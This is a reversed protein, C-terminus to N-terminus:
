FSPPTVVPGCNVSSLNTAGPSTRSPGLAIRTNTMTSVPSHGVQYFFTEGLGPNGADPFVANSPAGPNAVADAYCGGKFHHTGDYPDVGASAGAPRRAVFVDYGSMGAPAPGAPWNLRVATGATNIAGTYDFFIDETDGNGGGVDSGDGAYVRVTILRSEECATDSSCRVTLRYNADTLPAVGVTGDPSFDQMLDVVTVVNNPDIAIQEWKFLLTGNECAPTSASSGRADLNVVQGLTDSNILRGLPDPGVQALASSALAVTITGCNAANEGALCVAPGASPDPLIPIPAIRLDTLKIDDVYWGDDQEYPSESGTQPEAFSRSTSFSWGGGYSALWRLRAQRGSFPSLDFVSRAWVGTGVSGNQINTPGRDTTDGCDHGDPDAGGTDSDTGPNCTTNIGYIDGIDAWVPAGNCVTENAPSAQDDGPDFQCISLTGQITHDYGNVNPSLRQWKGFKGDLGVLSIQVQGGGFTTGGDLFGFNEAETISIAHWFELTSS